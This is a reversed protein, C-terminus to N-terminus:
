WEMYHTGCHSYGNALPVSGCSYCSLASSLFFRNRKTKRQWWASLLGFLSFLNFQFNSSPVCVFTMSHFLAFRQYRRREDGSDFRMEVKSRHFPLSFLSRKSEEMSCSTWPKNWESCHWLCFWGRRCYFFTARYQRRCGVLVLYVHMSWLFWSFASSTENPDAYFSFYHINKNIQGTLIM